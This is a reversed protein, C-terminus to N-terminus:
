FLFVRVFLTLGGGQIHVYHSSTIPFCTECVFGDVSVFMVVEVLLLMPVHSCVDGGVVSGYVRACCKAFRSWVLGQINCAGTAAHAHIRRLHSIFSKERQDSCLLFSEEVGM